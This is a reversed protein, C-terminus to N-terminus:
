RTSALPCLLSSAQQTNREQLECQPLTPYLDVNGTQAGARSTHGDNGGPISPKLAESLLMVCNCKEWCAGRGADM